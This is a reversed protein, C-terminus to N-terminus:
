LLSEQVALAVQEAEELDVEAAEPIPQEMMVM